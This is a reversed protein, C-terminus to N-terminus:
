QFADHEGGTRVHYWIFHECCRCPYVWYKETFVMPESGEFPSMCRSCAKVTHKWDIERFPIVMIVEHREGLVNTLHTVELGERWECDENLDTVLIEVDERM